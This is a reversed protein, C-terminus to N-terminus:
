FCSHLDKYDIGYKQTYGKAVLRAKHIEINGKSDRKTKFVWKCGVHKKENPLEVLEWVENDDMSKLEEKMANLWKESDYCEMAKKFSVHDKDIGLDCGHDVSYVVYDDSIASKRERTSRRLTTKEQQVNENTARITNTPEQPQVIEHSINASNNEEPTENININRPVDSGSSQGNEIFRANGSEVIRTSHNPYYFRYGYSRESYGIFNGSITREDIKKEHPNYIRVEAPCGWVHLHRLSPRKVTWLEYPTKPVSKSPVRNLLYTATKLAHM